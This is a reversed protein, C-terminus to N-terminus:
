PIMAISDTPSSPMSLRKEGQTDIEEAAVDADFWRLFSLKLDHWYEGQKQKPAM